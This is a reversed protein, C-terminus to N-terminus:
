LELEQGTQNYLQWGSPITIHPSPAKGKCSRCGGEQMESELKEGALGGWLHKRWRLCAIPSPGCRMSQLFGHSTPGGEAVKWILLYMTFHAHEMGEFPKRNSRPTPLYPHYPLSISTRYTCPLPSINSNTHIPNIPLQSIPLIKGHIVLHIAIGKISILFVYHLLVRWLNQCM